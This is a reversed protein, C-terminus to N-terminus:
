RKKMPTRGRSAKRPSAAPSAGWEKNGSALAYIHSSIIVFRIVTGQLIANDTMLVGFHARVAIEFVTQWFIGLKLFNQHQVKSNYTLSFVSLYIQALLTMVFWNRGNVAEAGWKDGGDKLYFGFGNGVTIDIFWMLSAFVAVVSALMGANTPMWPNRKPLLMNGGESRSSAGYVFNLFVYLCLYIRIQTSDVLGKEAQSGTFVIATITTNM